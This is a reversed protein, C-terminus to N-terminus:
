QTSGEVDRAKLQLTTHSLGIPSEWERAPGNVELPGIVRGSDFRVEVEDSAQVEWTLPGYAIWETDAAIARLLDEVGTRPQVSFRGLDTTQVNDWDQVMVGHDEVQGPRRLIVHANTFNVGGM